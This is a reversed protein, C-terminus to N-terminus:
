QTAWHVAILQAIGIVALAIGLLRRRRWAPAPDIGTQLYERILGFLGMALLLSGGLLLSGRPRGLFVVAHHRDSYCQTRTFVACGITM